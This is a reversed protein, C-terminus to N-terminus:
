GSQHRGRLGSRRDCLESQAFRVLGRRLVAGSEIGRFGCRIGAETGAARAFTNILEETFSFLYRGGDPM